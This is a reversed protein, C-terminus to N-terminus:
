KFQVPFHSAVYRQLDGTELREILQSMRADFDHKHQGDLNFPMDVLVLNNPLWNYLDVYAATSPKGQADIGELRISLIVVPASDLTPLTQRQM